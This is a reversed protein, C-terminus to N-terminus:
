IADVLAEVAASPMPTIAAHFHLPSRFNFGVVDDGDSVIAYQGPEPRACREELLTLQVNHQVPDSRLFPGADRLARGADDVVDVRFQNVSGMTRECARERQSPGVRRPLSRYM